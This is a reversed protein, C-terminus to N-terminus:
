VARCNTLRVTPGAAGPVDYARAVTALNLQGNTGRGFRTGSRTAYPAIPINPLLPSFLTVGPPFNSFSVDVTIRQRTTNRLTLMYEYTQGAAGNSYIADISVRGQCANAAQAQAGGAVLCLVAAALTTRTM